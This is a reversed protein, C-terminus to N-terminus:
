HLIFKVKVVPIQLPFMNRVTSLNLFCITETSPVLTNNLLLEDCAATRPLCSHRHFTFGQTLCLKWTLTSSHYLRIRRCCKWGALIFLCCFAFVFLCCSSSLEPLFCLFLCLFCVLFFICVLGLM